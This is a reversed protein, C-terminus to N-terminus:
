KTRGMNQDFEAVTKGDRKVEGQWAYAQRFADSESPYFRSYTLNINDGQNVKIPIQIPLYFHKWCDSTQRSKIDDGSIDLLVNDSLKACFYGKFGTLFGEKIVRYTVSIRYESKDRGNFNFEQVCQPEALYASAPIICDYYLNFQKEVGLNDLLDDLDYQSNIVRCKKARVQEHAKQSSIPTLYTQVSAPLMIGRDKLFRKKADALIPTMDENDALNGLIESIIVDVREPLNVDYSLANFIEFRDAFGANSIRKHAQPIRNKNVDIGHVRKAGAELAWLALIGTGTGLDLVTMGPHVVEKIASKYAKMRISDNLMLDHFDDDWDLITESLPFWLQEAEYKLSM